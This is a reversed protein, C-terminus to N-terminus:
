CDAEGPVGDRYPDVLESHDSSARFGPGVGGVGPLNLVPVDYTATFTVRACRVFGEAQSSSGDLQSLRVNGRERDRGHADLAEYGAEVAHAEPTGSPDDVDAEVYRRAAERAASDVAFKADVVAWIGAITLTGLVFILVGFPLAEIGGVVGGDNGNAHHRGSGLGGTDNRGPAEPQEDGPPSTDDTNRASPRPSLRVWGIRRGQIREATLEWRGVHLAEGAVPLHGLLGSVLGGITDWDGSPLGADLRANVKDLPTRGRVLLDGSPLPEIMTDEIDFEDVIDGVLEEIIDELTVLGATVGYEDVVIAMHLQQLQMERLLEPLRKTEPIFSAPRILESVSRHERGDREAQMLDRSYVLGVIDDVGTTGCVPLRTYGNLLSVEIVDGVHFDTTVSVMDPKPTMVDRAVTDAFEAISERLEFQDHAMVGAPLTGDTPMPDPRAYPGSRLGDGPVILNTLRIVLRVAAQVTRRCVLARVPRAVLAGTRAPYMLAWTRPAAIALVFVAAANAATAVVVGFPGVVRNAVVGVLTAEVMVCLVGALALPTHIDEPRRLLDVLATAGRKGEVAFAQARTRTVHGTATQGLTVLAILLALVGIAALM